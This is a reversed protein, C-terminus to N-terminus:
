CTTNNRPWRPSPLTRTYLFPSPHARPSAPCACPAPLPHPRLSAPADAPPSVFRTNNAILHLWRHQEPLWGIWEDRAKLKFAGAHWGILALWGYINLKLSARRLGPSEAPSFGRDARRPPGDRGAAEILGRRNRRPFGCPVCPAAVARDTAEILGRRNRRPFGPARVAMSCIM